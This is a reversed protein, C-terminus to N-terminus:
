DQPLPGGKVGFLMAMECLSRSAQGPTFGAAECLELYPTSNTLFSIVQDSPIRLIVQSDLDRKTAKFDIHSLVLLQLSGTKPSLFYLSQPWAKYLEQWYRRVEPILYLERPDQNYGDILIGQSARLQRLKEAPNALPNLIGRTRLMALVPELNASEAHVRSVTLGVFDCDEPIAQTARSLASGMQGVQEVGIVYSHESGDTELIAVVIQTQPDYKGIQLLLIKDGIREVEHSPLYRAECGTADEPGGKPSIIVTGRGSEELGERAFGALQPLNTHIFQTHRQRRDDMLEDIRKM